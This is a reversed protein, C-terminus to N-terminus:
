KGELFKGAITRIKEFNSPEVWIADKVGRFWTLQRKAYQRTRLRTREVAESFKIRGKLYDLMERYGHSQMPRLKENYGKILLSEVEYVLGDEIMKNIRKDINDYIVDRDLKLCIYLVESERPNKKEKFKSPQIGTVEFIELARMIRYRDNPHIHGSLAPDIKILKSYMSKLGMEDCEKKLRERISTDPFAGDALGELFAKIYFGTGGVILVNKGKDRIKRVEEEAYDKFKKANFEEDPYVVDILHHRVTEQEEKTPKATGIDMLKYVQRSDANIIEANFKEALRIGTATKGSATAGGIVIIRDVKKQVM